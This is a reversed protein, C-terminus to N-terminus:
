YGKAFGDLDNAFGESGMDFLPQPPLSHAPPFYHNHESLYLLHSRTRESLNYTNYLKTGAFSSSSYM